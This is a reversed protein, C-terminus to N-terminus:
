QAAGRNWQRHDQVVQEYLAEPSASGDLDNLFLEVTLGRAPELYIEKTTEPNSHGLLTQVIVYPDGHWERRLEREQPSLGFSLEHRHIAYVLMRLAFSHRLQHPTCQLDLVDEACRNNAPRM